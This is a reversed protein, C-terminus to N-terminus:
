QCPFAWTAKDYEMYVPDTVVIQMWRDNRSDTLGVKWERSITQSGAETFELPKASSDNGDSQLWRYEIELPGSVTITAYVTYWINRPCGTPPDRVIDYTVSLVGYNPRDADSVVIETYFPQSYSGVGFTTGDPAKLMWHSEYTGNADPAVM